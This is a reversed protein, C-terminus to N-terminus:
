RPEYSKVRTLYTFWAAYYILMATVFPWTTGPPRNHPFVPSLSTLLIGAGTLGLAVRALTIAGPRQHWLARGAAVAIAAIGLRMALLLVAWAGRDLIRPLVTSAYLALGLPEGVILLASVITLAAPRAQRGVADQTALSELCAARGERTTRLM